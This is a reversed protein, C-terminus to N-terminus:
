RRLPTGTSAPVLVPEGTERTERPERTGRSINLFKLDLMSELSQKDLENKNAIYNEEMLKRLLSGEEITDMMSSFSLIQHNIFSIDQLMEMLQGLNEEDM